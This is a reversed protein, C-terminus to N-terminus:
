MLPEPRLRVSSSPNAVRQKSRTFANDLLLNREPSYELQVNLQVEAGSSMEAAGSATAISGSKDLIEGLQDSRGGYIRRAMMDRTVEANGDSGVHIRM